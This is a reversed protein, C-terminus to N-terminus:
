KIPETSYWYYNGSDNVKFIHKYEGSKNEYKTLLGEDNMYEIADSTNNFNVDEIKGTLDGYKYISVYSPADFSTSTLTVYIYKEYLYLEKDSKEAKYVKSFKHPASASSGGGAFSYCGNQYTYAGSNENTYKKNPGYMKEIQQKVIEDCYGLSKEIKLLVTELILKNSLDEYKVIHSSYATGKEREIFGYPIYSQSNKVIDSEIDISDMNIIDDKKEKTETTEKEKNHNDIQYWVGYSAGAVVALMLLVILVNKM